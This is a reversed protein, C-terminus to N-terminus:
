PKTLQITANPHLKIKFIAVTKLYSISLTDSLDHQLDEIRALKCPFTSNTIYSYCVEIFHTATIRKKM